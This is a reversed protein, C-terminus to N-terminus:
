EINVPLVAVDIEPTPHFVWPLEHVDTTPGVDFQRSPEGTEANFRLRLQREGWVVHRNTVLYLRYRIDDGRRHVVHGVLFGTGLWHTREPSDPKPKGIAVVCDLFFPPILAM